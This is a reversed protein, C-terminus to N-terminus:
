MFKEFNVPFCRRRFRKKGGDQLENFFNSRRTHKGTFKAFNKLVGKKISCRRHSSRVTTSM